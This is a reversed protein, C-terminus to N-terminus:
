ESRWNRRGAAITAESALLERLEAEVQHGYDIVAQISGGYKRKLQGLIDLRAEIEALRAPSFEINERYTRIERALDDIVALVDDVTAQLPLLRSDIRFPSKLEETLRGM